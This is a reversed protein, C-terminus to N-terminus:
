MGINTEAQAILSDPIEKDEVLYKCEGIQKWKLNREFRANDKYYNDRWYKSIDGGCWLNTTVVRRGDNFEIQFRAGGFGRCQIKPDENGISYFTGDIIATEPKNLDKLRKRWLDCEFCEGNEKMSSEDSIFRGLEEGCTPCKM